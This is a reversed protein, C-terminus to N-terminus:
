HGEVLVKQPSLFTAFSRHFGGFFRFIGMQHNNRAYINEERKLGFVFKYDKNRWDDESSVLRMMMTM